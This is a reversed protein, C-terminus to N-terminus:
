PHGALRTKTKKIVPSAKKAFSRFASASITGEDSLMNATKRKRLVERLDLTESGVMVENAVLRIGHSYDAYDASHVTSLPQIPRADPRHWGYIAIAGPKKALRRSLVVDKKHGAVLLPENGSQLPLSAERGSVRQLQKQVAYHHKLINATSAVAPTYPVPSPKLKIQAKSYIVDVMKRTPLNLNLKENLKQISHLNLPVRVYDEDSGVALYDPLAWFRLLQGKYPGSKLRTEIPVLKRIFAPVNGKLIEKVFASERRAPSLSEIKKLFATGSLAKEPRPPLDLVHAEARLSWSSLMLALGTLATYISKVM